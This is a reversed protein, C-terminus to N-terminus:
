PVSSRSYRPGPPTRTDPQTIFGNETIGSEDIRMVMAGPQPGEPSQRGGGPDGARGCGPGTVQVRSSVMNRRRGTCFAHPDVSPGQYPKRDAPRVHGPADPAAWITSEFLSVQTGGTIGM